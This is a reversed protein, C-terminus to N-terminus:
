RGCYHMQDEGPFGCNNPHHHFPAFIKPKSIDEKKKSFFNKRSIKVSKNDAIVVTFFRM